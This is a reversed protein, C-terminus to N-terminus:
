LVLQEIDKKKGVVTLIDNEMLIEDPHPNIDIKGDRDISIINISYRNRIDLQKITKDCFQKPAKIKSIIYKSSTGIKEIIDIGALSNAFVTGMEKEPFIVRKAGVQALIRGHLKNVAKAYINKIGMGHLTAVCMISTELNEGISVVVADSESIGIERLSNEDLCDAQYINQIRESLERIVTENKDICVIEKGLENLREAISSGFRGLGIIVFIDKM